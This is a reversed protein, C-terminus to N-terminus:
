DLLYSQEDGVLPQVATGTSSIRENLAAIALNYDGITLRHSHCRYSYTGNTSFTTPIGFVTLKQSCSFTIIKAKGMLFSQIFVQTDAEIFEATEWLRTTQKNPKDTHTM